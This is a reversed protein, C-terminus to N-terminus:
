KTVRFSSWVAAALGFETQNAIAIAEDLTDFPIVVLVPGFIEENAIRATADPALFITPELYAGAGVPSLAQGGKLLQAEQRGTEIYRQVREVLEYQRMM